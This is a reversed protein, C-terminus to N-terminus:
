WRDSSRGLLTPRDILTDDVDFPIRRVEVSWDGVGRRTPVVYSARADGDLPPGVSGVNVLRRTPLDRVLPRHAHGMFELRSPDGAFMAELEADTKRVLVADRVHRPSGHVVVTSRDLTLQASVNEVIGLEDLDWLVGLLAPLNGHVDSLVAVRRSSDGMLRSWNLYDAVWDTGVLYTV